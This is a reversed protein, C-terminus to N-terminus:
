VYGSWKASSDGQQRATEQPDLERDLKFSLEAFTVKHIRNELNKKSNFDLISPPAISMRVLPFDITEISPLLVTM